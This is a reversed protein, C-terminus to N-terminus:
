VGKNTHDTNIIATSSSRESGTNAAPIVISNVSRFKFVVKKRDLLLRLGWGIDVGTRIKRVDRLIYKLKVQSQYLKGYQLKGSPFFLVM